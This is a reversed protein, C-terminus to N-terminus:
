EERLVGMPDVRAARFSPILAALAAVVLVLVIVASLTVADTPSVGYLMGSLVRTLAMALGWGALCGLLTVRLGQMVFQRVIQERLAGLALRLGVERRRLNVSYNLTGYLGICVLSVATLAFLTLLTTRLRDEAVSASIRERLPQIDFVSRSPEIQHITRRLTDALAM